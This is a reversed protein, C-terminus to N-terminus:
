TLRLIPDPYFTSVFSPNHHSQLFNTILNGALDDSLWPTIRWYAIETIYIIEELSQM